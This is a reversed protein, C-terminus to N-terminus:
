KQIYGKKTKEKKLKVAMKEAEAESELVKENITGPTGIKGYRVTFNKGDLTYEWFKASNEADNIYEFYEKTVM